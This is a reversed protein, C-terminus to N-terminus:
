GPNGPHRAKPRDPLGSHTSKKKVAPGRIGRNIKGPNELHVAITAVNPSEVRIFPEVRQFPVPTQRVHHQVASDHGHGWAARVAHQLFRQFRVSDFFPVSM